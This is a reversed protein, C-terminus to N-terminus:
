RLTVGGNAAGLPLEMRLTTGAGRPSHLVIRGGLAEARDKLGLLGTGRAFDAGGIGDDRVAVRLVPDAADAVGTEVTVSVVSAHAHKAVNTLAEAVIYYASVEVQEPLHQEVRMDLDVQIPSRRALARLASSLGAETLIAPHIGRSIERLEDVASTAGAVARDLETRLTDLESPLATQTARLQLALSVLRQQAGDHLDREIHRRTQDAAAVIRARSATLEARSEANAVATAVLETFDALRRETDPPLRQHRARVSMAGWIRGEVLIPSAVSSLIGAGGTAALGASTPNDVDRRAAHGTSQVVAMASHPEPKGRSGPQNHQFGQRGMVTAQGDPEFRVIATGDAGFLAGVEDAVTAFVLQPGTGRAVLTAVRRLAVQEDAIRRFDAYLQANDLSVALQGAILKVGDLREATFAGRILRNELLLIARLTERSLIPVALLSCCTVNTFYPDRAFRDDCTADGVVLPERMRQTYRLVSMPLAREHGITSDPIAGGGPTPLLWHQRDDSWLPLHVATAGTMASLVQVVRAHLEEVSTESSLAQSASLIGLLDLAGTTITARQHMVDGPRGGWRAGTADPSPRLHPYAWDLQDVKATAGWALYGQRAEILLDYAAQELSHALYFRAARETILARHWPRQRQAVARRAADFAVAAVRFDGVAWAREAELLRLLHQFNEPADAARAALWQAVEDLESLLGGREGDHSTRAQGALALGRLLHALATSYVGQTAPLLKMAAASHRTLGVLDGFIAAAIARTVHAHFLALLNGIYRDTSVAAGAAASGVGGLMDALWRYSDLSERTQEDGIRQVFALGAAVEAVCNDLSPACDLLGPVTPYYTYGANTLDGGAVLGERARQAAEVGHEIPEFWCSQLAFLTRAQSTDPEYGHAEGLALLRRLARYGAAYDGRMMVAAFGIYCAPGPLTRAPGHEIWIRLAELSLWALMAHDPVFFTAHQVANILRTAALLTPETIEQRGLEDADNGHAIWRYLYEFQRDLEMPLRDAVPVAIGLERLSELDLGIAETYRNRHTLSRVQVVTATARELPSTCLREITRYEEDAEELRGLSYLAAHRGTHMEVLTATEDPGVLRLAATLLADVLVYDGILAAQDAARRLLGVVVHREVADDVADVLPLYQEAAVAFLEPVAALRRAMALRLTCLREPGVGGLIVERIRDHRFRVAEHVGPELVLLGEDLAPALRQEMVGAPTATAAQLLGLETRGGLCAMAEVVQRSPPPMTDLRAAPPGTIESQGLHARVSAADWHWGAATATLVGVRRLANLLEVTEYPNGSTHPEIVETLGAAGAEDVHLIETVMTVTGGVPLNILRVHRVGPQERWRSLPATLPHAADLDGERYAGVLLLGDVPEERLLLDVLGLPARGAWQLDDVFFVVPRKRSAVARLLQVSARQSRVQATLPDGPDPPVALLAAFEPNVATVLGANPGVAELIRGRITALEDEPEALLLRGLARFAQHVANFELDRRYQDFKGAVFWGDSGTVVPRLEDVLATKGVGPVGGVLVGCCRGTLADEFAARLAALEDDRGVLRSPPLLRLPVDCAGVRLGVPAARTPADRLRELDYVVGEATQYRNDPEKELLHMIIESLPPFVAPNAEAPPVPVRAMHDHTLRLPDGSGFPPAGTALEYLTAGLAYLDARQDVSRGTRGTQEPALYELTGVIEAHHTFEPRLEALSTALAFDVLCPEGDRSIVVNAPTIDRHMVGRRHMGAVARALRVALEVLDDVALPKALGALSEGGVDALVIPGPCQPADVLRAVGEVGRLRELVALEHQVRRRSDPGLPEKRVVTDGAFALRTVRTRESEHVVEGRGPPGQGPPLGDKGM